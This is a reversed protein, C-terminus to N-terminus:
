TKDVEVTLTVRPNISFPEVGAPLRVRLTDGHENTLKLPATPLADLRLALVTVDLLSGQVSRDTIAVVGPAGAWTDRYIM